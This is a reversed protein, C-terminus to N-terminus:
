VTRRAEFCCACDYRSSLEGYGNPAVIECQLYQCLAALAYELEDVRNQLQEVDSSM